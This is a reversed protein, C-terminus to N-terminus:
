GCFGYFAHEELNRFSAREFDINRSPTTYNQKGEVVAAVLYKKILPFKKFRNKIFLHKFIITKNLLMKIGLNYQKLNLNLGNKTKLVVV